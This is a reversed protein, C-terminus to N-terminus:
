RKRSRFFKTPGNPGDLHFRVFFSSNFLNEHREIMLIKVCDHFEKLRRRSISPDSRSSGRRSAPQFIERPHSSPALSSFFLGLFGLFPSIELFSSFSLSLRHSIPQDACLPTYFRPHNITARITLAGRSKRSDLVKGRYKKENKESGIM